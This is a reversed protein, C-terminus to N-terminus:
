DRQGSAQKPPLLWQLSQSVAITKKGLHHSVARPLVNQFRSLMEALRGKVFREPVRRGTHKVCSAPSVPMM